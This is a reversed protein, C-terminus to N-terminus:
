LEQPPQGGHVLCATIMKGIIYYKNSAVAKIDHIPVVNEPWGTFLGSMTFVEKMLLQYFERKPGGDDVSQEGIFM